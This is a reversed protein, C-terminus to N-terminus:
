AEAEKAEESATEEPVIEGAEEEPEASSEETPAEPGVEATEEKEAPQEEAVAEAAPVAETETAEETAPTEEAPAEAEPEAPRTSRRKEPNRVTKEKASKLTVWEPLKVGDAKLLASVRPSPQAGHELYFEAKEKDVKFIKAHPDYNGLWAVVKGSSPTQRSDQVVLRFMAHGKRGTRQLRIVLM